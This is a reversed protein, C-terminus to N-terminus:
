ININSINVFCLCIITNTKFLRVRINYLNRSNGHVDDYLFDISTDSFKLFVVDLQDTVIYRLVCFIFINSNAFLM